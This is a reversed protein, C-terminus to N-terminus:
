RKCRLLATTAENTEEMATRGCGGHRHACGEGQSGAATSFRPSHPQLNRHRHERESQRQGQEARRRRKWALEEWLAGWLKGLAKNQWGIGLRGGAPRKQTPVETKNPPSSVYWPTRLVSNVCTWPGPPGKSLSNMFFAHCRSRFLSYHITTRM